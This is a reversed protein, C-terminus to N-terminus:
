FSSTKPLSLECPIEMTVATPGGPPSSIALIGDFAALRREIGRLGSSPFAPPPVLRSVLPTLSVVAGTLTLGASVIALIWGVLANVTVWLLDRWTAVDSLLWRLRATYPLKQGGDAPPPQYPEAIPVGCWEGVLRRTLSALRRLSVLAAPVFFRGIGLGAGLILLALLTRQSGSLGQDLALVAFGLVTLFASALVILLLGLGALMLGAFALGHFWAALCAVPTLRPRSRAPQRATVMTPAAEM